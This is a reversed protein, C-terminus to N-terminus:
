RVEHDPELWVVPAGVEIAGDDLVEAFVGGRWEPSLARRLGPWAEDMLECPRTEGNILLRCSGVRLIRGRSGALSLGAILLNARRAVPEVVAGLDGIVGDWSRQDILTVQRRRGQDANGVIGLGARLVARSAADMPGGHARKIWIAELRGSVADASAAPVQRVQDDM